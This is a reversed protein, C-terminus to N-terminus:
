GRYLRVQGADDEELHLLKTVFDFPFWWLEQSEGQATHFVLAGALAVSRPKHRKSPRYTSPRAPFQGESSAQKSDWPSCACVICFCM